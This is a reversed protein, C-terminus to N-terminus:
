ARADCALLQEVATLTKAVAGGLTAAAAAARAGITKAADRDILLSRAIEIIDASSRVLGLGQARFIAEYSSTFNFTHPGALVACNLRAPELPNQGGHRILSGGVFAFPALRYFLGLEGMTDAIYVATDGAPLEGQARRRAARTGCLMEIEAGREIHRPVLITLLDPITQRLGDHVPLITEDEGPHTQAALLVPRGAIANQLAELQAPDAPLPPADAKLSGITYVGHAGLRRFREAIEEDQALCLDFASLLAAATKPAWSWGGFSRESMRANVLALKIGREKAGLVLNPWIDSDVFLGIQPQWHDLFRATASPTDIPIFQHIAGCPLRDQLVRASSVTGSTVLVTRTKQRLLADILPLAAICEGVSAGHVWVLPGSPRPPLDMGLREHLRATDEKGRVARRRLFMPLAPSLLTTAAVYAKFGIPAGGMRKDLRQSPPLVMASITKIFVLM